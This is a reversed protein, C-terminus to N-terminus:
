KDGRLAKHTAEFGAYVGVMRLIWEHDLLALAILLQIAVAGYACRRWM